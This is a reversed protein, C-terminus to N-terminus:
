SDTTVFQNIRGEVILVAMNTRDLRSAAQKDSWVAYSVYIHKKRDDNALFSKSHYPQSVASGALIIEPSSRRLRMRKSLGLIIVTLRSRRRISYRYAYRVLPRPLTPFPIYCHWAMRYSCITLEKPYPLNDPIADELLYPKTLFPSKTSKRPFAM